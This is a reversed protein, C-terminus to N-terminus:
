YKLFYKKFPSVGMKSAVWTTGWVLSTVTVAFYAKKTNAM